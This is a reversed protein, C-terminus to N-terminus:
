RFKLIAALGVVDIILMSLIIILLQEVPILGTKIGIIIDAKAKNNELNTEEFNAENETNTIEAKNEKTGFNDSAPKWKLTITLEKEEGPALEVQTQYKGEETEKWYKPSNNTIKFGNPIKEEITALGAIEETNKIKIQYEVEVNTEYIEKSKIEFKATKKNKIEQEEGNITLKSITKEIAFDFKLKKYYYIVTDNDQTLTGKANEPIKVLEYYPIEEEKTEYSDGVYGTIQYGYTEKGNKIIEKDTDIDIHKIEVTGSPIREYYYIVEITNSTMKGEANEPEEGTKKYNEITKRQTTYEDGAIGDIIEEKILEKGTAKDIYKVIVKTPIKEYIYTVEIPDKQMQGKENGIIEVLKYNDIEKEKTEYEDWLRGEIKEEEAIENGEKDIYKSYVLAPIRQYYYIVEQTTEKIIGETNDTSEVYIYNEIDEKQTKYEKGVKENIEYNYSKEIHEGQENQEKVIIDKNLDKDIYRVIVKGNIKIESTFTEEAEDKEETEYLITTGKVKNELTEKTADIDKYVISIQKTIDIQYDKGSTLTNIHPLEEVWTITKTQKDYTGGNIESLTEDIEYPLTDKIEVRGAGIYNKITSTYHITYNIKDSRKSIEKTGTKEITADLDTEILNYENTIEYTYTDQAETKRIVPAKYYELDQNETEKEEVTYEIKQGQEDYKPLEKLEYKWNNQENLQASTIETTGNKITITVSEPRKQKLNNSDEWTKIININVKYEQEVEAKDIATIEKQIKNEGEQIEPYYIKTSGTVNNEIKELVNQNKYVIEINKTINLTAEGNEFTDINDVLQRWTITKTEKNYSGSDLNSKTEDIEYPLVDVIEVNAKGIYNTINAIYEIKYSIKGDEKTLIQKTEETEVPEEEVIVKATKTIKNQLTSEVLKYYYTIEQIEEKYKGEWNEPHTNICTYNKPVENSPTTQYTKGVIGTKTEDEALKINTYEKTIDNYIYHHIKITSPIEIQTQFTTQKKDEAIKTKEEPNNENIEYLEINTNVKNEFAGTTDDINGYKYKVSIAKTISIEKNQKTKFTNINEYTETWTLTKTQSNYEAGQINSNEEDIEYPLTDVITIKATGKFNKITTNYNIEYYIPTEKSTVKTTGIKEANSQLNLEKTEVPVEVENTEVGDVLATNKITEQTSNNVIVSFKIKNSGNKTGNKAPVIIDIGNKLDEETKEPLEAEGIIISGPVFTTGEPATDKITVYKLLSGENEVTITYEIKEGKVVYDEEYETTMEKTSTIIPEIYTHTIENTEKENVQAKNKIKAENEIDEVIVTFELTSVGNVGVTVPIGNALDTATKRVVGNDIKISNPLFSTGEPIIDKVVATGALTGTNEVTIRYTIEDGKKVKTGSIPASEKSAKIDEKNVITKVENTSLGDVVATNKIEKEFIGNALNNVTM